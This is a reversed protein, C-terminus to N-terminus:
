GPRRGRVARRRREPVRRGRVPHGSLPLARGRDAVAAGLEGALRRRRQRARGRPRHPRQVHGPRRVQRDGPTRGGHGRHLLGVERAPPPRLRLGPGQGGPRAVVAARERRRLRLRQLLLGHRGHGDRPVLGAHGGAPEADPALHTRGRESVRPRGPVHVGLDRGPGQELQHLDRRALGDSNVWQLLNEGITGSGRSTVALFQVESTSVEATVVVPRNDSVSGTSPCAFFTTVVLYYANPGPFDTGKVVYNEGNEGPIPTIPGAPATRYGWQRSAVAGGGQDTPTVTGGLCDVCVTTPGVAQLTTGVWASYQVTRTPASLVCSDVRAELDLTHPGISLTPPEKLVISPTFAFPSPAGDLTWRYEDYDGEVPNAAYTAQFGPCFSTPGLIVPQAGLTFSHSIVPAVAPLTSLSFQLQYRRGAKDITLSDTTGAFSAIGDTLAVRPPSNATGTLTAGTTGTGTVIAAEVEHGAPCALNGGDDRAEVVAEVNYPGLGQLCAAEAPQQTVELRRAACRTGLVISVDNSGRNVVAVDPITDGSFDAVVVDVPSAGAVFDEGAEFTTVSGRGRVVEFGTAAVALDIRGDQNIDAAAAHVALDTAPIRAPTALFSTEDNRFVSVASGTLVTAALDTDGDADFDAGVVSTLTTDGGTLSLIEPTVDDFDGTGNGHLVTLRNATLGNAVAFDLTADADLLGVFISTPEPGVAFTDPLAFSIAGVTSTNRLLAVAGSSVRNCVLLDLDSDGDM